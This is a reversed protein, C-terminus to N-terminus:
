SRERIELEIPISLRSCASSLLLVGVVKQNPVNPVDVFMTLITQERPKLPQQSSFSVPQVYASLEGTVEANLDRVEGSRGENTITFLKKLQEGPAARESLRNPSVGLQDPGTVELSIPVEANTFKVRLAGSAKGEEPPATVKVSLVQSQGGSLLVTESSVLGSLKGEGVLSVDAAQADNNRASVEINTSCGSGLSLATVDSELQLKVNRGLSFRLSDSAGSSLTVSQSASAHTSPPLVRVAVDAQAPVESFSASGADDTFKSRRAGDPMIADVQVGELALDSDIEVVRVSLSGPKPALVFFWLAAALIVLLLVLKGVGFRKIGEGVSDFRDSFGEGSADEM